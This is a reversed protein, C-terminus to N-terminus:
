CEPEVEGIELKGTVTATILSRRYEQLKELQTTIIIELRDFHQHQRLLWTAILEQEQMSPFPIPLEEFGERNVYAITTATAVSKFYTSSNLICYRLFDPDVQKPIYAQLQQNIVVFSKTISATGFTGVCGTIVANPKLLKSGAEHIADDSVLFGRNSFGVFRSGVEDLTIWPYGSQENLEPKNRQPIFVSAVRKVPVVEWNEPIEGIWSIGSDKMPTNHNLGKTVAQNILAIHKEELLQILRQKKAILTDITATKRDLFSAISKQKELSTFPIDFRRIQQIGLAQRTSGTSELDCQSRISDSDLAYFLFQSDVKAQPKILVLTASLAMQPAPQIRRPLGLTGVKCFVIDGPVLRFALEQKKVAELKVKRATQVNISGDSNIDRIGVYPYGNTEALEPARHDPQPDIVDSVFDLRTTQFDFFISLDTM